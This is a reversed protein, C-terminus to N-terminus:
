AATDITVKSAGGVIDIDYFDAAEDCGSSRDRFDGGWALRHDFTLQSFGGSVRLRAASGAPRHLGFAAAGGTFRVPCVGQPPGLRVEIRSAGGRVSLGRLVLDGLDADILSAGGRLDITWPVGGNLTVLARTAGRRFLRGLASWDPLLRMTVVGHESVVEPTAGEYRVRYLDPMDNEVRLRLDHAGHTLELRGAAVGGLPASMEGGAAPGFPAADDCTAYSM